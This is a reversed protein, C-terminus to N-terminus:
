PQRRLLECCLLGSRSRRLRPQTVLLHRGGRLDIRRAASSWQLQVGLLGDRRAADYRRRRSARKATSWKLETAATGAVM